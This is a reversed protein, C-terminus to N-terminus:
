EILIFSTRRFASLIRVVASYILGLSYIGPPNNQDLLPLNRLQDTKQYVIDLSIFEKGSADKWRCIVLLPNAVNVAVSPATFLVDGYVDKIRSISEWDEDKLEHGFAAKKDDAEEFYQLVLADSVSCAKKLSGSVAPEKGEEFAFVSDDVSFGIFNGNKYDEDNAM